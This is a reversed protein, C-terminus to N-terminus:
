VQKISVEVNRNVCHLMLERGLGLRLNEAAIHAMKTRTGETASGIHPSFVVNPLTLLLSEAQLPERDFVDLGAAFLQGSSLAEALAVEDVIGGRATNVLIAGTKMKSIARNDILGRTQENLEVHLSVFDSESMLRDMDVNQVGNISRNSRTWSLIRMNFAAARRAVAQGIEGLGIIGLTSGAVDKGLFMNPAWRNAEQWTGTRVFNDAEPVRRAAALMLAFTLDATTDVLVGPTHGLPIKRANLADIDIHDVGVSMSSIVRLQPCAELFNKDINDTLMCLLGDCGQSAQVLQDRSPPCDEPWVDVQFSERLLEIASGVLKRSVFVRDSM